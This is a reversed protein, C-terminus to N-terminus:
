KNHRHRCCSVENEERVTWEEMGIIHQISSKWVMWYCETTVNHGTFIRKWLNLIALVFQKQVFLTYKAATFMKSNIKSLFLHTYYPKYFLFKSLIKKYCAIQLRISLQWVLIEYNGKTWFCNEFSAM